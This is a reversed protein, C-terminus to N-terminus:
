RTLAEFTARNIRLLPTSKIEKSLKVDCIADCNEKISVPIKPRDTWTTFRTNGIVFVKKESDLDESLSSVFLTTEGDTLEYQIAEDQIFLSEKVDADADADADADSDATDTDVEADAALDADEDPVVDADDADDADDAGDLDDLPLEEDEGALAGLFDVLKASKTNLVRVDYGAEELAEIAKNIAPSKEYAMILVPHM